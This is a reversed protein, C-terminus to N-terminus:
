SPPFSTVQQLAMLNGADVHIGINFIYRVIFVIYCAVSSRPNSINFCWPMIQLRKILSISTASTCLM